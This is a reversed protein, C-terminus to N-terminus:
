TTPAADRAICSGGRWSPRTAQSSLPVRRGHAAMAVSQGAPIRLNVDRLVDVRTAGLPYHLALHQLEIM